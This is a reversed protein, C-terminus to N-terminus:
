ETMCTVWRVEEELFPLHTHLSTYQSCVIGVSKMRAGREDTNEVEMKEYCSLGYSNDKTKFYRFFMWLCTIPTWESKM